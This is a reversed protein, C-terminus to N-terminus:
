QVSRAAQVAEREATASIVAGRERALEIWRQVGRELSLAGLLTFGPGDVTWLRGILSDKSGYRLAIM